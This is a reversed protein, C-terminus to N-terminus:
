NLDAALQSIRKQIRYNAISIISSAIIAEKLTKSSINPFNDMMLDDIGLGWLDESQVAANLYVDEVQKVLDLM